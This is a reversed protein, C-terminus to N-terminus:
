CNFLNIMIWPRVKELNPRFHNIKNIHGHSGLPTKGLDGKNHLNNPREGSSILTIEGDPTTHTRTHIMDTKIKAKSDLLMPLNWGGNEIFQPCKESPHGQISCVTCVQNEQPKSGIVVENVSHQRPGERQGVGEYQQANHARNAILTKVAVSTMDVLAGGALADLM